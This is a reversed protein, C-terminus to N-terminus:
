VARRRGTPAAPTATANRQTGLGVKRGKSSDEFSPKCIQVSETQILIRHSRVHEFHHSTDSPHAQQIPLMKRDSYMVVTTPTDFPERLAGSPFAFPCSLFFLRCRLIRLALLYLFGIWDLGFWFLDIGEVGWSWGGM